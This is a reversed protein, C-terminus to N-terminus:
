FNGLIHLDRHFPLSGWNLITDDELNYEVVRNNDIDLMRVIPDTRSAKLSYGTFGLNKVREVAGTVADCIAIAGFEDYENSIGYIIKSQGSINVIQFDSILGDTTIVEPSDLPAITNDAILSHRSEGNTWRIGVNEIYHYFFPAGKSLNRRRSGSHAQHPLVTKRRVQVTDLVETMEGDPLTINYLRNGRIGYAFVRDNLIIPRFLRRDRKNVNNPVAHIQAAGTDVDVIHLASTYLRGDSPSDPDYHLAFFLIRRRKSDVCILDDVNAHTDLIYGNVISYTTLESGSSLDFVRIIGRLREEAGSGEDKKEVVYVAIIENDVGFSIPYGPLFEMWTELSGPSQIRLISSSKHGGNAILVPDSVAGIQFSVAVLLMLCPLRNSKMDLEDKRWNCKLKYLYIFKAAGDM